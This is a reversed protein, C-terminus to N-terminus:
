KVVGTVSLYKKKLSNIVNVFTLVRWLRSSPDQNSYFAAIIKKVKDPKLYDKWNSETDLLMSRVVEEKEAKIWRNVPLKFGHKPRLGFDPPLLTSVADMLLRKTGGVQYSLSGERGPRAKINKPQKFSSPLSFVLEVLKHDILPFRVEMSNAMSVADMDRLLRSSMFGNLDLLLVRRLVDSENSDDLAAFSNNYLQMLQINRSVDPTIIDMFEGPAEITHSQTYQFLINDKSLYSRAKLFLDEVYKPYRGFDKPILGSVAQGINSNNHHKWPILAHRSYGGFMEDPGLGSLAVTIHSAAFKSVLYTNLGDVSPQDLGEFYAPFNSVADSASLVLSTHNTQFYKAMDESEKLENRLTHDDSFGITFSRIDLHNYHMLALIVSSDLGGSLFLGLPRDSIMQMRVSTRLQELLENKANDYSVGTRVDSGVSWYRQTVINGNSWTLVHGPMLAFVNRLITLPQQINGFTFFEFIADGELNFDLFGSALFAKIESAFILFGDKVAYYFPKIGLRDRAAFLKKEQTDWIAFAFMGNLLDVCKEGFRAYATIIVETDSDSIFKEGMAELRHRIERFNYFEGNYVIWYRGCHSQMPQHGLASLDIISLRVMGLTVSDDSFLGMDDPGRHHICNLMRMMAINEDGRTLGAIGCM